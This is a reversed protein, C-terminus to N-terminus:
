EKEENGKFRDAGYMQRSESTTAEESHGSARLRRHMYGRTSAWGGERRCWARHIHAHGQLSQRHHTARTASCDASEMSNAVEIRAPEALGEHTSNHINGTDHYLITLVAHKLICMNLQIRDDHPTCRQVQSPPADQRRHVNARVTCAYPSRSGSARGSGWLM